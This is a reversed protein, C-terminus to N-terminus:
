WLPPWAPKRGHKTYDTWGEGDWWRWLKRDDEDPYWGAPFPSAQTRPAAPQIAWAVIVLVIGAIIGAIGAYFAATYEGCMIQARTSAGQAIQGIISSCAEHRTFTTALAIAGAVVLVAGLVGINRRRTM